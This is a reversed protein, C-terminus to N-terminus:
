QDGTRLLVVTNSCLTGNMPFTWIADSWIRRLPPNTSLDQIYIHNTVWFNFNTTNPTGKTPVDMFDVRTLVTGNSLEDMTEYGTTVPWDRPRWDAARAQEAGQSAYSQAALSMSCWEATWNAQVYGYMIGSLVTVMIVLSIMVEILTFAASAPRTKGKGHQQFCFNM